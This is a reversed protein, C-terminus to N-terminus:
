CSRSPLFPTPPLPQLGERAQRDYEAALDDFYPNWGPEKRAAIYRRHLAAASRVDGAAHRVRARTAIVVPLAALEADIRALARAAEDSRGAEANLWAIDVCAWTHWMASPGLAVAKGLWALAADREGRRHALAACMLLPHVKYETTAYASPDDNDILAQAEDDRGCFMLAEAHWPLVYARLAAFPMRDLARGTFAAAQTWDGRSGHWFGRALLVFHEQYPAGPLADLDALTRQAIAPWGALRCAFASCEALSEAILRSGIAAAAAFGEAAYSVAEALRGLRSLSKSANNCAGALTLQRGIQRAGRAAKMALEAGEEPTVLGAEYLMLWLLKARDGTDLCFQRSRALHERAEEYRSRAHSVIARLQYVNAWFMAGERGDSLAMVQDLHPAAEEPLHHTTQGHAMAYHVRVLTVRDDASEARRILDAALTRAQARTETRAALRQLLRLATATHDPEVHHALQFLHLALEFREDAAAQRGRFYAEAALPDKPLQAAAAEYDIACGLLAGVAKATALALDAPRSEAVSGTAVKRGAFLRFDVQLGAPSRAVRAHVVAAAGTVQQLRAVRQALTDAPVEAVAGLVSPMTVLSIRRDSELMEGVLSPLGSRVWASDADNTADDFPLLAVSVSRGDEGPALADTSVNAVFRFGVRQVATVACCSGESEIAQRVKTIARALAASSVERGGFVEELLEDKSVVRHRHRILHLLLRRPQPQMTVPKGDFRLEGSELDATFRGFRVRQTAEDNSSLPRPLDM